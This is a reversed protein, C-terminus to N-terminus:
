SSVDEIIDEKRQELNSRAPVSFSIGMESPMLAIAPVTYIFRGKPMEM